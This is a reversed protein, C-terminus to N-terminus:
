VCFLAFVLSDLILVFPAIKLMSPNRCVLGDCWSLSVPAPVSLWCAVKYVPYFKSLRQRVHKVGGAPLLVDKHLIITIGFVGQICYNEIMETNLDFRVLEGDNSMFFIDGKNGGGIPCYVCDLPGVVFLKTWSEKLGLEGLISIHVSTSKNEYSSIFAVSGNLTV